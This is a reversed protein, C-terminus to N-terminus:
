LESFLTVSIPTPLNRPVYLFTKGRRVSLCKSIIARVSVLRSRIIQESSKECFFEFVSKKLNWYKSHSFLTSVTFPVEDLIPSTWNFKALDIPWFCKKSTIKYTYFKRWFFDFVKSWFYFISWLLLKTALKVSFSRWWPIKVILRFKRWFIINQVNKFINRWIHGKM